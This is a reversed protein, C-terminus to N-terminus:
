SATNRHPLIYSYLSFWRSLGTESLLLSTEISNLRSTLEPVYFDILILSLGDVKRM